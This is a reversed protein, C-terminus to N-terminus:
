LSLRQRLTSWGRWVALSRKAWRWARRPRSVVLAFVSAAVAAPHNKLWHVGAGVKDVKDLLGILPPTFQALDARQQRIQALLEGRRLALDVRRQDM